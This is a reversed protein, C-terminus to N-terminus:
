RRLAPAKITSASAADLGLVAAKHFAPCEGIVLCVLVPGRDIQLGMAHKDMPVDFTRTTMVSEGAKLLVNLPIEAVSPAPDYRRWQTDVLYVDKAGMERQAVRRARSFIRLTVDYVAVSDKPVRKV